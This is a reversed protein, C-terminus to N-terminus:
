RDRKVSTYLVDTLGDELDYIFSKNQRKSNYGEDVTWSSRGCITPLRQIRMNNEELLVQESHLHQLFVETFNIQSWYERAEDPILKPLRKLDGEHAFVFLTYGFKFYKRPLPAYDVTVRENERFWSHINRALHFATTKDHNAPVYMVHIPAIDKLFDVATIMIRNLSEDATYFEM